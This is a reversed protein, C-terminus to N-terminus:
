SEDDTEKKNTKKKNTKKKTIEKPFDSPVEEWVEDYIISSARQGRIKKNDNPPWEWIEQNGLEILDQDVDPPDSSFQLNKAQDLGETLTQTALTQTGIGDMLTKVDETDIRSVIDYCGMVVIPDNKDIGKVEVKGPAVTGVVAYIEGDKEFHGDIEINRLNTLMDTM